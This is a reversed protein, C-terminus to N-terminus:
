TENEGLASPPNQLPNEDKPDGEKPPENLEDEFASSHRLDRLVVKADNLARAMMDAADEPSYPWNGESSFCRFMEALADLARDREIVLEGRRKHLFATETLPKTGDYDTKSSGLVNESPKSKLMEATTM